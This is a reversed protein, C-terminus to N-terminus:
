SVPELLSGEIELSSARGILDVQLVLRDGTGRKDVIGRVGRLPGSRVQVAQGEDLYACPAVPAEAELVREIQSLEESLRPQDPVDLIRAVRRTRDAAFAEDRTGKLFVYSPFLPAEVRVKRRGHYRTTRMTPLFHRVGWASLEQSLSKEQRSRTHLVYWREDPNAGSDADRM